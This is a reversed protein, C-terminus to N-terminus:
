RSDEQTMIVIHENFLSGVLMPVLAGIIHTSLNQRCAIETKTWRSAFDASIDIM